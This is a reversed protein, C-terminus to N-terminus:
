ALQSVLYPNAPTKGWRHLKQENLFVELCLGLINGYYKHSLFTDLIVLLQLIWPNVTPPPCTRNESLLKLRLRRWVYFVVSFIVPSVTFPM